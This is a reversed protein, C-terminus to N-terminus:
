VVGDRRFRAIEEAGFGLTALVSETHEGFRPPATRLSAPTESLKIPTGLTLTGGHEVVM